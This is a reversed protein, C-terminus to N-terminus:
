RIEKAFFASVKKLFDREATVRALERRLRAMAEGETEGPVPVAEKGGERAKRLWGHLLSVNIGLDRAVGTVTAGPRLTLAIAEARFQDTFIRRKRSEM